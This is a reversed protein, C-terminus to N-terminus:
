AALRKIKNNLVNSVTWRSCGFERAIRTM